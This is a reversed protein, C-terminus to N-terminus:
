AKRAYARRAAEKISATGMGYYEILEVPDGSQGFRDEVGIFEVPVPHHQALIEAVRSGMGGHKQHEEVTVVAGCSKAADVIAATDMPKITHNNVVRAEIGDERSLEDAAVLANYVLIGCAVIAVDKGERFVQAKGIEFPTEETTVIASKERAFRLYTPGFTESLAITAKKTQVSDCPVVVMMHPIVRMIAIDEVAQHTAGDPGVSVGAHAGAIKVDTENLAMITRVQEWSRGPNFMAYSAIWPTKGVAALGGAMAVLMQEAVGIEIYQAPHAKKFGEMRTSEALDACIALVNKNRTGAEILGEGFGNRTPLQKVETRYDVLHMAAAAPDVVASPM